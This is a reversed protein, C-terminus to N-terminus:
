LTASVFAEGGGLPKIVDMHRDSKLTHLEGTMTEHVM